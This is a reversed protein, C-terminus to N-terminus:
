IQLGAPKDISRVEKYFQRADERDKPDIFPIGIWDFFEQETPLNKYDGSPLKIGHENLGCGFKKLWGRCAINFQASGTRFLLWAGYNQPDKVRNIDLYEVRDKNKYGGRIVDDGIDAHTHGPAPGFNEDDLLREKLEEWQSKNMVTLIDCDKYTSKGRRWSGVIEYDAIGEFLKDLMPVVGLFEERPHRQPKPMAEIEKAKEKAQELAAKRENVNKQFLKSNPNKDLRSQWVALSKELQRVRALHQPLRQTSQGMLDELMQIHKCTHRYKFGACSCAWKGNTSKYLTYKHEGNEEVSYQDPSVKNLAYEDKIRSDTVSGIRSLVGQNYWRNRSRILLDKANKGTKICEDADKYGQRYKTLQKINM